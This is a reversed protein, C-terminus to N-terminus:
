KFPSTHTLELVEGAEDQGEAVGAVAQVIGAGKFLRSCLDVLMVAMAVWWLEDEEM